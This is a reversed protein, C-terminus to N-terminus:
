SKYSYGRPTYKIPKYEYYESLFIIFLISYLISTYIFLLIPVELIYIAFYVLVQPFILLVELGGTESFVEPYRLFLTIYAVMLILLFSGFYAMIGAKYISEGTIHETILLSVVISVILVILDLGLIIFMLIFQSDFYQLILDVTFQAFLAEVIIFFLVTLIVNLVAIKV